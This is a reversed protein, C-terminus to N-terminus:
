VLNLTIKLCSQNQKNYTVGMKWLANDHFFPNDEEIKLREISKITWEHSPQM